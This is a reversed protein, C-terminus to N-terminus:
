SLFDGELLAENLERLLPEGFHFEARADSDVPLDPELLEAAIHVLHHTFQLWKALVVRLGTEDAASDLNEFAAAKSVVLSPHAEPQTLVPHHPLSDIEPSQPTGLVHGGEDVHYECDARSAPVALLDQL